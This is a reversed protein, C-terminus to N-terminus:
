SPVFICRTHCLNQFGNMLCSCNLKECDINLYYCDEAGDSNIKQKNIAQDRVIDNRIEKIM